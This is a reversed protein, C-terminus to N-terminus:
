DDDPGRLFSAAFFISGYSGPTKLNPNVIYEDIKQAPPHSIYLGLGATYLLKQHDKQIRELLGKTRMLKGTLFIKNPAATVTVTVCLQAVYYSIFEWLKHDEKNRIEDLSPRDDMIELRKRIAEECIYGELSETNHLTVGSTLVDTEHRNVHVHGMESYRNPPWFGRQSIVAGGVGVSVKLCVAVYNNVWRRQHEDAEFKALLDAFDYRGSDDIINRAFIQFRSYQELVCEAFAGAAVDTQVRIDPFKGANVFEAAVIEFINVGSFNHHISSGRIHGYPITGFNGTMKTIDPRELKNISEFPGFCCLGVAEVDVPLSALASAVAKLTNIIGGKDLGGIHYERIYKIDVIVPRFRNVPVQDRDIWGLSCYITQDTIYIGAILHQHSHASKQLDIINDSMIPAGM